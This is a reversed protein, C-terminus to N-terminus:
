SRRSRTRPRRGRGIAASHRKGSCRRIPKTLQCRARRGVSWQWQSRRGARFASQRQAHVVLCRWRSAGHGEFDAGARLDSLITSRFRRPEDREDPTRTASMPRSISAFATSARPQCGARHERHEVGFAVARRMPIPSISRRCFQPRQYQRLVRRRLRHVHAHVGDSFIRHELPRRRRGLNTFSGVRRHKRARQIAGNPDSIDLWLSRRPERRRRRRQRPAGRQRHRSFRRDVRQVSKARSASRVSASIDVSTVLVQPYTPDDRTPIAPLAGGVIM